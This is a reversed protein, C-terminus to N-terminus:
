VKRFDLFVNRVGWVFSPAVSIQIFAKIKAIDRLELWAQKQSNLDGLRDQFTKSVMVHGLVYLGGKKLHNCFSILKFSTRPNDVLLLVQPRWYKVNDQRLKLLYKRVQHYILSQSVDGWQKPPSVYHICLLLSMLMIFILSAAMGDVIFMAVGSLVTGVFASRTNFYKFSPRFNPASAVKLFFCALNTVIFTMLFAMTILGAIQNIDAFLFLQCLLWTFIIGYIPDDVKNGVGFMKLGPLIEDRAIAQLLKAAGVIGVIVSFISTSM